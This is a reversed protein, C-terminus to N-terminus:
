SLGRAVGFMPAVMAVIAIAAAVVAAVGIKMALTRRQRAEEKAVSASIAEALLRAAVQPPHRQLLRVGLWREREDLAAGDLIGRKSGVAAEAARLHLEAPLAFARGPRLAFRSVVVLGVLMAPFLPWLRAVFAPAPAAPLDLGAIVVGYATAGILATASVLLVPRLARRWAQESDTRAEFADAVEALSAPALADGRALARGYTHAASVAAGRGLGDVIRELEHKLQGDAVSAATVRLAEVAPLGHTRLAAVQRLILPVDSM